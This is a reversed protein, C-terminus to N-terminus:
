CTLINHNMNILQSFRWFIENSKIIIIIIIMTIPMKTQDMMLFFNFILSQVTKFYVGKPWIHLNELTCSIAFFIPHLSSCNPLHQPVCQSSLHSSTLVYHSCLLFLLFRAGGGKRFSFSCPGQRMQMTM